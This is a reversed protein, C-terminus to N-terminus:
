TSWGLEEGAGFVYGWSEGEGDEKFCLFKFFAIRGGRVGIWIAWECQEQEEGSRRWEMKGGGNEWCKQGRRGWSALVKKSGMDRMEEWRRSSGLGGGEALHGGLGWGEVGGGRGGEGTTVSGGTVRWERRCKTELEKQGGGSRQGERGRGATM